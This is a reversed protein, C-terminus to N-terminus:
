IKRIKTSKVVFIDRFGLYVVSDPALFVESITKGKADIFKVFYFKDSDNSISGGRLWRIEIGKYM